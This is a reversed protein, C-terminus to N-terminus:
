LNGTLMVPNTSGWRPMEEDALHAALCCCIELIEWTRLAWWYFKLSYSMLWNRQTTSSLSRAQIETSLPIYSSRPASWSACDFDAGLAQINDRHIIYM